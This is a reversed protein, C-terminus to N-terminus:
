EMSANPNNEDMPVNANAAQDKWSNVTERIWQMHPVLNTVIIANESLCEGGFSVVGYQVGNKNVAPGGIDDNCIDPHIKQDGVCFVMESNSADKSSLYSQCKDEAFVGYKAVRLRKTLTKNATSSSVGWGYILVSSPIDQQKPKPLRIIDISDSTFNFSKKVKLLAINHIHENPVYEPHQVREAVTRIQGGRKFTKSGARIKLSEVDLDKVCEASTLIINNKILSGSCKLHKDHVIAVHWNAETEYTLRGSIIPNEGTDSARIGGVVIVLVVCITLKIM